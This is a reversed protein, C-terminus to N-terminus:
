EIGRYFKKFEKRNVHAFALANFILAASKKDGCFGITKEASIHDVPYGKRDAILHYRMGKPDDWVDLIFFERVRDISLNGRTNRMISNARQERKMGSAERRM